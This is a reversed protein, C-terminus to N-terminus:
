ELHIAQYNSPVATVVRSGQLFIVLGSARDDPKRLILLGDGDPTEPPRGVWDITSVRSKPVRTAIGVFPFREDYVPKGHAILVTRYTGEPDKLIYAVDEAADAGSFNGSVKGVASQNQSHLWAVADGDFDSETALRENRVGVIAAEETTMGEPAKEQASIEAQGSNGSYKVAASIAIIAAVVGAAIAV